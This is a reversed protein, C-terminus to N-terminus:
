SQNLLYEKFEEYSNSLKVAHKEKVLCQALRDPMEIKQGTAKEVTDIFKSPHATELVIGNIDNRNFENM